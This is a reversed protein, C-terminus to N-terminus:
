SIFKFFVSHCCSLYSQLRMCDCNSRSAAYVQKPSHLERQIVQLHAATEQFRQPAWGTVGLLTQLLLHYACAKSIFQLM